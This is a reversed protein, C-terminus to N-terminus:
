GDPSVAVRDPEGELDEGLELSRVEKGGAVDWVRLTKDKGWSALQKGDPLFTAGTTEAPGALKAVAKGTAVEWVRVSGDVSLSLVRAGDPSFDRQRSCSCDQMTQEAQKWAEKGTAADWGRLTQDAGSSVIRKGDPSFRGGCWGDAHGELVLLEKGTAADWVRLTRDGSSSLIRKGDPSFSGCLIVEKHGELKLLQRGTAAEWVYLAASTTGWSVVKTGDPNFAGGSWGVDENPVLQSVLQATKGDYIRVPSRGGADGAALFYRGNPSFTVRYIHAPVGDDGNFADRRVEAPSERRASGGHGRRREVTAVKTDGRRITVRDPSLALADPQGNLELDYRGSTLKVEKSTKTDIIRVLNGNQKIVVEIDPDDTKIILRGNDTQIYYVAAAAALGGLALLLLAAVVPWRRRRGPGAPLVDPIAEKRPLRRSHGPSTRPRAGGSRAPRDARSLVATAGTFPELATAVKAPTQYRQEPLKAMMRGVMRALGPPLDSRRELLSPPQRETHAMIKQVLTGRPFPPQGSLLHYLTCGLSYIDSRIDARRADDAQEPALYDVTGLLTNQGTVGSPVAGAEAALRALGFDLIKITGDRTRMLNHPKIDRHIMGHDHAHQLGLAAQRVYDCAEAVPLPGREAVWRALDTGEVYEMVLFHLDGAQEADYAAVINPHTLRASAKFERRFREVGAANGVLAQAMVKVAVVREMLRHEAKYVAGMGGSGLLGLVRYRPHTALEPPVGSVAQAAPAAASTQGGDPVVEAEGASLGDKPALTPAATLSKGRANQLLDIFTDSGVEALTRCCEKCHSVHEEIVSAEEAALGGLGFTRLKDVSPHPSGTMNDM